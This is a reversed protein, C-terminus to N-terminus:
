NINSALAAFLVNLSNYVLLSPVNRMNPSEGYAAKNSLTTAQWIKKIVAEVFVVVTRITPLRDDSLMCFTEIHYVSEIKM